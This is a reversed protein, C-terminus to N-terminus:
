ARGGQRAQARAAARDALSDANAAGQQWARSDGQAAAKRRLFLTRQRAVLSEHEDILRNITTDATEGSAAVATLRASTARFAAISTKEDRASM